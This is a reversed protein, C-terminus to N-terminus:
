NKVPVFIARDFHFADPKKSGKVYSPGELKISYYAEYEVNPDGFTRIAAVMGPVVDDRGLFRQVETQMCTWTSSCRKGLLKRDFRTHLRFRKPITRM